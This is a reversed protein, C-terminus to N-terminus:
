GKLDSVSLFRVCVCVCVTSGQLPLGAGLPGDPISCDAAESEALGLRGKDPSGKLYVAPNLGCTRLELSTRKARARRGKVAVYDM